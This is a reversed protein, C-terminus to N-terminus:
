AQNERRKVSACVTIRSGLTGWNNKGAIVPLASHLLAGGHSVRATIISVDTGLLPIGWICFTQIGFNIVHIVQILPKM